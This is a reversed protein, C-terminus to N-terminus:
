ITSSVSRWRAGRLRLRARSVASEPITVRPFAVMIKMGSNRYNTCEQSFPWTASRRAAVAARRKGEARIGRLAANQLEGRGPTLTKAGVPVVGSPSCVEPRFAHAVPIPLSQGEQVSM